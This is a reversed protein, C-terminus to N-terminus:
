GVPAQPPQGAYYGGTPPAGGSPGGGGDAEGFAAKVEPRTYFYMLVLPFILALVLGIVAGANGATQIINMMGPPPAPAGRASQQALMQRQAEQMKPMIWIMTVVGGVVTLVLALGAYALMGKRAWPKLSLSGISSALLLVSVLTGVVANAVNWVMMSRQMDLMPNPGPQPIFLAVVGLPKCLVGLGGFIIGIIALVTVATPRVPASRTYPSQYGPIQAPYNPGPYQTM